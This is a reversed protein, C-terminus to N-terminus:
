RQEHKKQGHHERNKQCLYQVVVALQTQHATFHQGHTLVHVHHKFCQIQVLGTRGRDTPTAHDVHAGRIAGGTGSSAVGLYIKSTYKQRINKHINKQLLVNIIVNINQMVIWAHCNM